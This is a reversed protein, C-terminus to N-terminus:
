TDAAVGLLRAMAGVADAVIRGRNPVHRGYWHDLARLAAHVDLIDSASTNPTEPMSRSARAFGRRLAALELRRAPILGAAIAANVAEVLRRRIEGGLDHLQQSTLAAGAETASLAEQTFLARALEREPFARVRMRLDDFMDAVIQRYDPRNLELWLGAAFDAVGAPPTNLHQARWGPRHADLFGVVAVSEGDVIQEFEELQKDSLGQSLREGVAYELESYMATLYASRLGEPLLGFGLNDPALQQLDMSPNM